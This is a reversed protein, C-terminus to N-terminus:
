SQTEKERNLRLQLEYALVEPPLERFTKRWPHIFSGAEDGITQHKICNRTVAHWGIGFDYHVRGWVEGCVPCMMLLSHDSGESDTWAPKAISTGLLRNGLFYSAPM